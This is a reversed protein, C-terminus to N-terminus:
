PRLGLDTAHQCYEWGDHGDYCECYPQALHAIYGSKWGMREEAAAMTAAPDLTISDEARKAAREEAWQAQRRENEALEEPTSEARRGFLAALDPGDSILASSVPITVAHKEVKVERDEM